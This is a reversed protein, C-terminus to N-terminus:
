TTDMWGCYWEHRWAKKIWKTKSIYLMQSELRQASFLNDDPHHRCMKALVKDNMGHDATIGIIAGLDDLRGLQKDMAHYFEDAVQECM